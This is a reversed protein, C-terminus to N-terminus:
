FPIKSYDRSIRKMLVSFIVFIVAVIGAQVCAFMFCEGSNIPLNVLENTVPDHTMMEGQYFQNKLPVLVSVFGFVASVGMAILWTTIKGWSPRRCLTGLGLYYGVTGAVAFVVAEIFFLFFQNTQNLSSAEGALYQALEGEGAGYLSDFLTYIPNFIDM